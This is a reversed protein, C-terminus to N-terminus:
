GLMEVLNKSMGYPLAFSFFDCSVMNFLVYYHVDFEKNGYMVLPYLHLCKIWVLRLLWLVLVQM